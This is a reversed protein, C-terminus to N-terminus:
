QCIMDFCFDPLSKMQQDASDRRDHLRLYLMHLMDEPWAVKGCQAADAGDPIPRMLVEVEISIWWELQTQLRASLFPRQQVWRRHDRRPRDQLTCTSHLCVKQLIRRVCLSGDDVAQLVVPTREQTCAESRKYSVSNHSEHNPCHRTEAVDARRTAEMLILLRTELLM